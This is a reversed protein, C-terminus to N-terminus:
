SNQIVKRNSMSSMWDLFEKCHKGKDSSEYVADTLTPHAAAQRALADARYFYLNGSQKKELVVAIDDSPFYLRVFQWLDLNPRPLGDIGKWGWRQEWRVLSNNAIPYYVYESCTYIAAREGCSINELARVVAMLHMRPDTSLHYGETITQLVQDKEVIVVALGGAGPNGNTYGVCYYDRM